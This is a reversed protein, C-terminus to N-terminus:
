VEPINPEELRLTIEIGTGLYNERWRTTDAIFAFEGGRMVCALGVGEPYEERTMLNNIAVLRASFCSTFGVIM